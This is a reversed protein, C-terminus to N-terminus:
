AHKFMISNCISKMILDEYTKLGDGSVINQNHESNLLCVHLDHLYLNGGPIHFHFRFSSSSATSKRHFRFRSFDVAEAEVYSPLIYFSFFNIRSDKPFSRIPPVYVNLFSFSSSNNLSINVEVYDSTYLALCLFLPPLFSVSSYTRSSSSSSAAVPTQSMLLFFVLDPTSAMPNYLLIDLSGSLPLYILTQNRSIFLTLPILRFLTYYNLAGPESVGLM